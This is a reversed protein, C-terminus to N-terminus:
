MLINLIRIKESLVVLIYSIAFIIFLQISGVLIKNQITSLLINTILLIFVHDMYIITSMKRLRVSIQYGLKNFHCFFYQFLGTSCIMASLLMNLHVPAQGSVKEILFVELPMALGGGFILLLSYKKMWKGAHGLGAGLSFFFLGYFLGSRTTIFVSRYLDFLHNVKPIYVATIDRYSDGLLGIMFLFFSLAIIINRNYKRKLFVYLVISVILARVYWLHWYGGSFLFNQFYKVVAQIFSKNRYQIISLPAYLFCWVVYLRGLHCLQKKYNKYDDSENNKSDLLYGSIIFFTPVAACSIATFYINGFNMHRIVVFISLIFKLLDIGVIENKISVPDKIDEM